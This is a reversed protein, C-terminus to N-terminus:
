KKVDERALKVFEEIDKELQSFDEKKVASQQMPQVKDSPNMMPQIITKKQESDIEPKKETTNTPQGDSGKKAAALKELVANVPKIASKLFEDRTQQKAIGGDAITLILDVNALAAPKHSVIVVTTGADRLKNIAEQIAADGEADLNSNPEDLVVLKPAGYLARALGIRQAQGGSLNMGFTGIETDYGNPLKNIMDHCGALQAAMLVKADDPEGMRAINEKITGDMLQVSQALYGISSGFQERDWNSISAGDLRVSGHTPELAGILMKCFTSKGAGSPGIVAILSGPEFTTNIARLIPKEAGNMLLSVGLFEVKGKPEPQKTRETDAPAHAFVEMIRRHASRAQIFARWAGLAQEAPALARGLIISAAIMGGSTMEGLTAFYAGLGLVLIQATFRVFKSMAAIKATFSSVTYMAEAVHANDENFRAMVGKMMGMSYVSEAHRTAIDVTNQAKIQHEGLGSMRRRTVVDNILALIFLIIAAGIAVIGLIPHVLMIAGVFLPMWPGDFFPLVSPGGVFQRVTALDNIAQNKSVGKARAIQIIGILLDSHVTRDWWHSIKALMAGRIADLIAIVALFFIVIITLYILTEVHQSQMVRDFIQQMYIPSALAGLNVFFSFFGVSVFGFWSAKYVKMAPYSDDKRKKQAM